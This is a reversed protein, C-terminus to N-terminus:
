LALPPYDVFGKADGGYISAQDPQALEAGLEFRRVLDPNAIFPKGFSVLSAAKRELVAEARERTYGGNIMLPARVMPGFTGLVDKPWHAFADIPFLAEMLHVYALPLENLQNILHTYLALPDSDIMSNYPIVPSCKIGVRSAGFVEVLGKMVDLVFKCRNGVSGGYEDSRTNSGDVLFQNPLYGFAGHLEVGDFGATRANEAAKRYDLVVQRVEETSLAAPTEYEQPGTPTFHKQGQIAIASPAVPLAGGRVSSHGVRGTHWLQAFILGGRAHVADTVARWREIQTATYLGPTFPSGIAQESINIGESIILGAGARQSYYTEHLATPQGEHHARSRTMPAMVVRNKLTLPGLTLPELLKM